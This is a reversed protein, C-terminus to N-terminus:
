QTNRKKHRNILGLVVMGLVGAAIFLPIHNWLGILNLAFIAVQTLGKVKHDLHNKIVVIIVPIIYFVVTVFMNNAWIASFVTGWYALIGFLIITSLVFNRHTSGGKGKSPATATQSM